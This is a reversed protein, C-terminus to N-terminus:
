DERDLRDAIKNLEEEIRTLDEETWGRVDLINHHEGGAMSQRIIAAAFQRCDRKLSRRRPKARNETM